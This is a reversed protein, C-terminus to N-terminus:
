DEKWERGGERFIKQLLNFMRCLRDIAKLGNGDEPRFGLGPVDFGGSSHGELHDGYQEGLPGDGDWLVMFFAAPDMTDEFDLSCEKELDEVLHDERDRQQLSLLAISNAIWRRQAPTFRLPKKLMEKVRCLVADLTVEHPLGSLEHDILDREKYLSTVYEEDTGFETVIEAIEYGDWFLELLDGGTMIPLRALSWVAKLLLSAVDYEDPHTEKLAALHRVEFVSYEAVVVVVEIRHWLYGYQHRVDLILSDGTAWRGSKKAIFATIEKECAAVGEPLPLDKAKMGIDRCLAAMDRAIRAEILHPLVVAAYPIAALCEKGIRPIKM